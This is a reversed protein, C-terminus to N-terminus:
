RLFDLLSPKLLRGSSEMTAKLTNENKNMDSFLEYTNVDEINSVMTKSDLSGRTVTDLTNALTSVRSGIQSRAMVVQNFAEDIREISEQIATTDNTALGGHLARIVAFVNEGEKPGEQAPKGNFVTAPGRLQPDTHFGQNEQQLKEDLIKQQLERIDNANHPLGDNSDVLAKSGLGAGHFVRDGPTNMPIYSGKDVEIMMEGDDGNYKGASTFPAETTKFGGFLYRDGMKRNAVHLSQQYLQEVETAVAQRTHANAGAENAQGIALEKARMLIDTMESLSQDSFELFSKAQQLSKEYQNYANLDTRASLVRAAGSPDDSPKTVRKQTAAQNQLDAAEKRNKNLNGIVQSYNMNDAVRM